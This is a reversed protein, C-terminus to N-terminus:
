YDNLRFKKHNYKKPPNTKVHTNPDISTLRKPITEHNNKKNIENNYNEEQMHNIIFNLTNICITVENYNIKLNHEKVYNLYSIVSNIDANLINHVYHQSFCSRINKNPRKPYNFECKYNFECFKYSSRSISGQEIDFHIEHACNPLNNHASLYKSGKEIWELKPIHLIIDNINEKSPEKKNKDVIQRIYKKIQNIIIKQYELIKSLSLLSPDLSIIEGITLIDNKIIHDKSKDDDKTMSSLLTDTISTKLVDDMLDAWSNCKKINLDIYINEEM